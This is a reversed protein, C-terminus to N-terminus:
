NFCSDFLEMMAAWSDTDAKANYGVPIGYKEGNTTAEKSTFGHQAGPHVIVKYDAGAQDMEERFASVDDMTVMADDEGHCVLLKAQVTGPAPKHFSGLAGHFSAVANIPMGIRAMHLAMAGGFCYGIAATRDSDVEDQSVLCEYGAKLRATGVEMDGLVSNMAEGAQDPNEAQQGNGYMDIALACYGNEALMNARSKVYENVGWWEHIVIVGPLSREADSDWAFYGKHLVGNCNYEVERGCVNM